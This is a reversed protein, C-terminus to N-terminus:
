RRHRLRKDRGRQPVRLGRRRLADVAFAVMAENAALDSVDTAVFEGGLEQAARAGGDADRDALM